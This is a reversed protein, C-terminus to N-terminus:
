PPYWHFFDGQIYIRLDPIKLQMTQSLSSHATTTLSQQHFDWFTSGQRPASAFHEQRLSCLLSSSFSPVITSTFSGQHCGVTAPLSVVLNLRLDWGPIPEARHKSLKKIRELKWPTRLLTYKNQANTNCMTVLAPFRKHIYWLNILLGYIASLGLYIAIYRIWEASM